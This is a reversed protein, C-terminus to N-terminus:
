AFTKSKWDRIRKQHHFSESSTQENCTVGGLPGSQPSATPSAESRGQTFPSPALEALVLMKSSRKLPSSPLSVTPPLTRHTGPHRPEQDDPRKNQPSMTASPPLKSGRGPTKSCNSQHSSAGNGLSAEMENRSVRISTLVHMYM